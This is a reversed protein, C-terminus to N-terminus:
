RRLREVEVFIAVQRVVHAHRCVNFIWVGLCAANLLHVIRRRRQGDAVGFRLLHPIQRQGIRNFDRQFVAFDHSGQADAQEDLRIGRARLDRLRRFRQERLRGADHRNVFRRQEFAIRNKAHFARKRCEICLQLRAYEPVFVVFRLVDGVADILKRVINEYAIGSCELGADRFGSNGAGLNRREAIGNVGGAVTLELLHRGIPGLVELQVEFLRQQLAGAAQVVADGAREIREAANTGIQM